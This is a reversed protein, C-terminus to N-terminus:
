IGMLAREIVILGQPRGFMSLAFHNCEEVRLSSVCIYQKLVVCITCQFECTRFKICSHFVDFESSLSSCNYM